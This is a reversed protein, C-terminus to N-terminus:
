FELNQKITVSHTILFIKGSITIEVEPKNGKILEGILKVSSSNAFVEVNDNIKYGTANKPITVNKLVASDKNTQLVDKGLYNIKIYLDKITIQSSNKNDISAVIPLQVSKNLLLQTLIGQLNIKSKDISFSWSIKDYLSKFYFFGGVVSAVILTIIIGIINGKSM